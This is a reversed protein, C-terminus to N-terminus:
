GCIQGVIPRSVTGLHKQSLKVTLAFCAIDNHSLGCPHSTRNVCGCSSAFPAFVMKCFTPLQWHLLNKDRSNALTKQVRSKLSALPHGRSKRSRQTLRSELKNHCLEDWGVTCWISALEKRLNAIENRLSTVLIKSTEANSSHKYKGNNWARCEQDSMQLQAEKEEIKALLAKKRDM